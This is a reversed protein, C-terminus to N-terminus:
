TLLHSAAKIDGRTQLIEDFAYDKRDAASWLRHIESRIMVHAEDLNWLDLPVAQM